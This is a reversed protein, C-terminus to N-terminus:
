IENDVFKILSLLSKVTSHFFKSKIHVRLAIHVILWLKHVWECYVHVYVFVLRFCELLPPVGCFNGRAYKLLHLHMCIQFFFFLFFISPSSSCFHQLTRCEKSSVFELTFYVLIGYLIYIKTSALKFGSNRICIPAQIYAFVLQCNAPQQKFFFNGM